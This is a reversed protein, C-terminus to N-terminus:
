FSFRFGIQIQRATAASTVRGVGGSAHNGNPANFVAHNFANFFDARVDFTKDEGLAFNKHLSLDVLPVGDYRLPYPAGNGLARRAAEHCFNAGGCLSRDMMRQGPVDPNAVGPATFASTDYWREVTAGGGLNGDKIRDTYRRSRGGQNWLDTGYFVRFPAGTTLTTIGTLEWGGLLSNTVGGANKFFPLEWIASMYYTSSRDHQMPARLAHREYDRSGSWDGWNGNYNMAMAKSWTYGMSLAIGDSFRRELKTQLSNYNMSGHPRLMTNPIVQPYPRRALQGNWERGVEGRHEAPIWERPGATIADSTLTASGGGILPVVYGEPMAVNFPSIERIHRGQNGVYGIEWKTGQFLEHQIMLNYSYVQGEQWDLESFYCTRYNSNVRIGDANIAGTDRPLNLRVGSILSPVAEGRVAPLNIVGVNPRMVRARLIGFEQDYTLGAGARLVTRNTGFIRWALGFRPAFYRWKAKYCGRHPLNAFPVAIGVEGQWQAIDFDKPMMEVPDIRGNAKTYDYSCYYYDRTYSGNPHGEYYPPRPQEWRLGINVTLNPGVKWDDNIFWNYHSQNFHGTNEGIGLVNGFVSSPTGLMFDAWGEGYTVGAFTGDPNYQLQGTGFGNFTDGGAAYPPIWYYHVDLNRVHEVGFKLYHDGKRWSATYKFGLGWDALPSETAGGWSTYGDPRMRPMNAGGRNGNPLYVEWNQGDDFGLVRPWNTDEIPRSILWTFKWISQTYETVLNSGIPNVWSIGIQYGRSRDQFQRYIGDQEAGPVGWAGTHTFAPSRQWSYRGFINDDNGFQHDVRFSYKDIKTNTARPYAYNSTLEGPQNPAPPPMLEMMKKYVAGQMSAPIQNNAFPARMGTADAKSGSFDFPNYLQNVPGKAGSGSFDGQTIATSPATAFGATQLNDIFKEYHAHFFTKDKLVPGGISGGGIHYDVPLKQLGSRNQFFNAADLGEDRFYYWAHGHFENSGSKSLMTIVAGGVRGYEASYNNTIVKFEQVTEPTPQVTPRQTIYGMNNSGDLQIQNSHSYLGNFTPYGGGYAYLTSYGIEQREQTGGTTLYALKVMDRGALPLDLIKKEEIVAAVEANDTDIITSQGTVTVQESIDGPEMTLDVRSVTQVELRVGLSRAVKFGPLEASIDYFGPILKDVVYDGRDNTVAMHPINTATATATVEVGPVVAGTQDRVTGLLRSFTAAQGYALPAALAHVVLVLAATALWLSKNKYSM